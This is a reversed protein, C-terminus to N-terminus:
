LPTRLTYAGQTALPCAATCLMSEFRLNITLTARKTKKSVGGEKENLTVNADIGAKRGGEADRAM